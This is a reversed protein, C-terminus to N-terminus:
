GGRGRARPRGLTDFLADADSTLAHAGEPLSNRSQVILLRRGPTLDVGDTATHVRCWDMAKELSQCGYVVLGLDIAAGQTADVVYFPM